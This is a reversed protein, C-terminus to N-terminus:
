KDNYFEITEIADDYSKKNVRKLSNKGCLFYQFEYDRKYFKCDNYHNVIDYANDLKINKYREQYENYTKIKMDKLYSGKSNNSKCSLIVKKEIREVENCSDIYYSIWADEDNSLALFFVTFFVLFLFVILLRESTNM